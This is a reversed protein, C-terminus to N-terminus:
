LLDFLLVVVLSLLLLDHLHAFSYPIVDIGCALDRRFVLLFCNILAQFFDEQLGYVITFLELGGGGEGVEGWM